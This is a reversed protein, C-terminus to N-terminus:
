LSKGNNRERAKRATEKASSRKCILCRRSGDKLFYTNEKNYVHGHTCHTKLKTKKWKRRNKCQVSSTSWRVNGPEYNGNTDIRDLSHKISPKKGIYEFFKEFSEDWEKCVKIGRGGYNDWGNVNSNSCRQRMACWANYEPTKRMGHTKNLSGVIEKQYCGCSITHGLKLHQSNVITNNGCSCECLWKSKKNISGLYAIVQLRGYIKGTLDEFNHAVKVYVIEKETM